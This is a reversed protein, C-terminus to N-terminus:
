ATIDARRPWQGARTWSSGRRGGLWPGDWGLFDAGLMALPVADIEDQTAGRLAPIRPYCSIVAERVMDKEARGHGAVYKKATNNAVVAIPIGHASLACVTMWWCGSREDTAGAHEAAAYAPKEIVALVTSPSAQRVAWRVMGAIRRAMATVDVPHERCKEHGENCPLPFTRNAATRVTQEATIRAAGAHALGMDLGLVHATM